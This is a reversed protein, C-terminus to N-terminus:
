QLVSRLSVTGVSWLLNMFKEFDMTDDLFRCVFYFQCDIYVTTGDAVASGFVLQNPMTVTYDTGPATYRYSIAASAGHQASNFTYVGASVAYQMAAPVGAVKTLAVGGITVGTDEIFDAAHAVTITYPGTGPVSDTETIGYSVTITNTDDVQGVTESFAGMTRRIPFQLITGDGTGCNGAVALYDDPDKVLFTDYSGRMALFFGMLQKLSSDLGSADELFEYPLDFQWRPMDTLSVRQERGSAGEAIRTKFLPKKHISYALGPLSSSPNSAAPKTNDSALNGFGPFALASMFPEPPVPILSEIMATAARVTSYGGVLPENLAAAARVTSYGGTIPENLVVPSLVSALGAAAAETIIVTSRVESM